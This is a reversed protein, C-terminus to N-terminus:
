NPHAPSLQPPQYRLIIYPRQGWYYSRDSFSTEAVGTSTQSGIFIQAQPDTIIGVHDSAGRHPPFVILDGRQPNTVRIFQPDRLYAHAIRYGFGPFAQSYIAHVFHSCDVGAKSSGNYRYPTGQWTRAQNVIRQATDPALAGLPAIAGVM